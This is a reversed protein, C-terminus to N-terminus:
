PSVFPDLRRFNRESIKAVWEAPASGYVFRTANAVTRRNIARADRSRVTVFQQDTCNGHVALLALNSSLPISFESYANGIGRDHFYFFPNDSTVFTMGTAPRLYLWKMSAVVDVFKETLWPQKMALQLDAPLGDRWEDRLRRLDALHYDRVGADPAFERIQREMREFSETSVEPIMAQARQQYAPVRKSMMSVFTALQHKQEPVLARGECIARLLVEAPAEICTALTDEMAEHYIGKERAVRTVSSIFARRHLKDYVWVQARAGSRTFRRLYHQPIYHNCIQRSM